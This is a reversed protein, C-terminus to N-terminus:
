TGTGKLAATQPSGGADDKLQLTGNRLGTASPKFKIGLTCNAGGALTPGCTSSAILFDVPNLGAVSISTFTVIANSVNTVTITQPSSSNGVTVTGLNLSSPTLKVATGTGKLAATQPSGGGDDQLQLTGNRLGTAIPKFKIGLTCNAGGALTPGCTSSAILFDAPNLGAVSIRTFTVIANSVNTVTITQPSSSNGVTVTGLNLSSPTLKIATGTGALATTQPSGQASDNFTLNGQRSGRTTPTFTVRVACSAGASLTAVCNNNSIVFDGSPSISSINLTATGTNTLTVSKPTSTMGIVTKPFTLKTVSLTVAPTGGGGCNGFIFSGIRSSWNFTGNVKEYQSTYWFTCDDSPDVQLATYDGWRSLGTTQSGTGELMSAESELAGAPDGPVRGTFRIGPNIASSSASYGIAIDNAKDMAASAMWRSTTDAAFTGQQNLTPTGSLDLIEYWRIAVPGGNDVSHNVVVREHDLFKRYGMRYMLRDGLTDLTQTTGKQPVCTGGNGCALISNAVNITTASSLTATTNAFNLTLKRLLLQGPNNNQWTLFLGPTGDTPPTSGDLDSPLYGGETNPTRVCLQVANGSGVLMKARDFGCLFSGIFTQGNQFMNYTALYASNSTTPWVGLKPYDNLNTGFSFNYLIYQGAPDNTKSVAVCESFTASIGIDSIVWRDALRDYNVIPDSAGTACAGGVPQFFTTLNTPGSLLAGNKSFVALRSNVTQVIHNPGVALNVDSPASGQAGIGDFDIHMIAAVNAPIETQLVPDAKSLTAIKRARMPLPKPEPAEVDRLGLVDIPLERLSRSVAHGVAHRVLTKSVQAFALTGSLVLCCVVFCGGVSLFKKCHIMANM